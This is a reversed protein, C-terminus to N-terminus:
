DRRSAMGLARAREAADPLAALREASIILSEREATPLDPIDVRRAENTQGALVLVLILNRYHRAEALPSATIQRMAATAKANDGALSEALALNTQLDLDQPALGLARTFSGVAQAPRGVLAQAAGLRSWGAISDIEPAALSLSRLASEPEGLRLQATGLGLLAPTLQIDESLAARFAEAAAAPEGAALRANGLRVQIDASAGNQELAREYMAAATAHDGRQDIDDALGLLRGETDDSPTAACGHLLFGVCVVSLASKFRRHAIRSRQIRGHQIRGHKAPAHKVPFYKVTFYKVAFHKFPATM